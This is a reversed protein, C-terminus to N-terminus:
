ICELFLDSFTKQVLEGNLTHSGSQGIVNKLIAFYLPTNGCAMPLLAGVVPHEFRARM